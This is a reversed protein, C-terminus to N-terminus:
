KVEYVIGIERRWSKKGKEQRLKKENNKKKTMTLNFLTNQYLKTEYFISWFM